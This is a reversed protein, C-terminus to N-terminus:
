PFAILKVRILEKWCNFLLSPPQVHDQVDFTVISTLLKKQRHGGVHRSLVCIQAASAKGASAFDCDMIWTSPAFLQFQLQGPEDGTATELSGTLMHFLYTWVDFKTESVQDKM